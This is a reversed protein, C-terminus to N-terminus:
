RPGVSNVLYLSGTSTSVDSTPDKKPGPDTIMEHDLNQDYPLNVLSYETSYMKDVLNWFHNYSKALVNVSIKLLLLVVILVQQWLFEKVIKETM